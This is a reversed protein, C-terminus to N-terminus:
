KKKQFITTTNLQKKDIKGLSTMPLSETTCFFERPVKYSACNKTCLEKLEREITEQAQKLQVYAVPIQGTAEDDIGVVAATLVNPHKLLILEIEQPYIKIGKHVILDKVRGIIRLRGSADFSALDGTRLWGDVIVAQTAPMDNYYGLMVNPGKIWLEGVQGQAVSSGQEDRLDSSIASFPTGVTDASVVPGGIQASVLPSAETLGYGNCIRRRYLLAFGMRIKESLADGGSIFYTVSDVPVTKLLCLLGYLAPVGFFITPRQTFGQMLSRREIRPIIIVSCGVWIAAWLCIVQAFSHFFPLAGLLRENGKVSIRALAQAINVMCNRSSLMVGKPFGTTGSTYLLVALADIDCEEIEISCQEPAKDFQLDVETVVRVATTKVKAALSSHAFILQPSADAIIHRLEQEHLFTNLPVVVAGIQLIAYYVIYFEPSNEYLVLVRDNKRVGASRLFISVYCARWYLTRYTIKENQYILATREGYVNGARHLLFGLSGLRVIKAYIHNFREHESENAKGLIM